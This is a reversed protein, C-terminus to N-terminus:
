RYILANRQCIMDVYANHDMAQFQEADGDFEQCANLLESLSYKRGITLFSSRTGTTLLLDSESIRNWLINVLQRKNAQTTIGLNFQLINSVQEKTVHDTENEFLQLVLKFPHIVQNNVLQNFNLLYHALYQSSTIRSENYDRALSSLQYHLDNTERYVALERSITYASHWDKFSGDYTGRGGEVFLDLQEGFGAAINEKTYLEFSKVYAKLLDRFNTKRWIDFYLKSNNRM